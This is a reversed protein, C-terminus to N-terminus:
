FRTLLQPRLLFYVLLGSYVKTYPMVAPALHAAPM